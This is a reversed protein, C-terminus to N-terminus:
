KFNLSLSRFTVAVHITRSSWVSYLLSHILQLYLYLLYHVTILWHVYAPFNVMMSGTQLNQVSFKIKNYLYRNSNYSPKENIILSYYFQVNLIKNEWQLKMEHQINDCTCQSLLSLQGKVSTFLFNSSIHQIDWKIRNLNSILTTLLSFIKHNELSKQCHDTWQVLTVSPM